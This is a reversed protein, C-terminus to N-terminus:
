ITRSDFSQKEFETLSIDLDIESKLLPLKTDISNFFVNAWVHETFFKNKSIECFECYFM